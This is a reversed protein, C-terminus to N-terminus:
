ALQGDTQRKKTIIIKWEYKIDTLINIAIRVYSAAHPTHWYFGLFFFLVFILSRTETEKGNRKAKRKSQKEPENKLM